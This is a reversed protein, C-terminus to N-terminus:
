ELHWASSHHRGDEPLLKGVEVQTASLRGRARVQVSILPVIQGILEVQDALLRKRRFVRHVALVVLVREDVNAVITDNKAPVIAVELKVLAVWIIAGPSRVSSDRNVIWITCQGM